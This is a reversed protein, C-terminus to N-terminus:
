IMFNTEDIEVVRQFAFSALDSDYQVIELLSRINSTDLIANFADRIWASDHSENTM